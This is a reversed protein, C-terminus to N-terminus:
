IDIETGLAVVQSAPVGFYVASRESNRQMFAFLSQRWGTMKSRRRSTVVTERGLIYSITDPHCGRIKGDLVAQRVDDVLTASREMFGYHLIVRSIGQPM